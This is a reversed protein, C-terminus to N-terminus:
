IAFLSTRLSCRKVATFFIADAAMPQKEPAIEKGPINDITVIFMNAEPIKNELM